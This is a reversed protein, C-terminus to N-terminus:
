QTSGAVLAAPFVVNAKTHFEVQPLIWAEGPKYCDFSAFLPGKEFRMILYVRRVSPSFNVIKVPEFGILKGYATEVQSLLGNVSINTTTDNEMPSGKLWAALGAKGGSKQFVKLGDTVIGPIDADGLAATAISCLSILALLTTKM